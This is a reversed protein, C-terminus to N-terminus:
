YRLIAAMQQGGPVDEPAMIFVDGGFALTQLAAANVLDEHRGQVSMQMTDRDFVGMTQANEKVFLHAIRSEFAAKVIDPFQTTARTSGAVNEWLALAKRAPQAFWDQVAEIARAHMEGGRFSEPSGTVSEQWLHPYTNIERYMSQEYEVACLVLPNDQGRLLDFVAKDIARFFHAIFQDKNDRDHPSNFTGSMTNEGQGNETIPRPSENPLRTNLFAELNTPVNEPFAIENVDNRTCRLLRVHKQSLALLLFEQSQLDLAHLIPFVHFFDGVVVKTEFEQRIHFARFLDPSRLIVISGGKRDQWEPADGDIEHLSEVLARRQARSLDPWGQELKQEAQQIAPRLPHLETRSQGTASPLTFTVTICPGTVNALKRIEDLHLERTVELQKQM